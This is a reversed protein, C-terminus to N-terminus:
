KNTVTCIHRIKTCTKKEGMAGREPINRRRKSEIDKIFMEIGKTKNEVRRDFTRMYRSSSSPAPPLPVEPHPRLGSREGGLLSDCLPHDRRWAM